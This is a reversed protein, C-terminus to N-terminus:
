EGGEFIVQRSVGFRYATAQTGEFHKYYKRISREIEFDRLNPDPKFEINEDESIKKAIRTIQKRSCGLRRATEKKTLGTKLMESVKSRDIM